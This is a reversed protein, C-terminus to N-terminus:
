VPGDLCTKSFSLIERRVGPFHLRLMNKFYEQAFHPCALAPPVPPPGFCHDGNFDDPGPWPRTSCAERGRLTLLDGSMRFTFCSGDLCTKLIYFSFSLIPSMSVCPPPAPIRADDSNFMTGRIIGKNYEAKSPVSDDNGWLNGVNGSSYKGRRAPPMMSAMIHRLPRFYRKPVRFNVNSDLQPIGSPTPITTSIACIRREAYYGWPQWDKM